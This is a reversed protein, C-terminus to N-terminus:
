LNQLIAGTMMYPQYNRPLYLLRSTIKTICVTFIGTRGLVPMKIALPM